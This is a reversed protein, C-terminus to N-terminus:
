GGEDRLRKEEAEARRLYSAGLSAAPQGRGAALEFLGLEAVAAARPRVPAPALELDDRGLAGLADLLGRPLEGALRARAPLADALSRTSAVHEGSGIARVAGGDREFLGAYVEGRRADLLAAVPRGAVGAPGLAEHAIAALTSIGAVPPGDDPDLAFALGKVTAIGIRVSTFSGPGIGVAFSDVEALAVGAEGLLRDLAPLLSEAHPLAADAEIQAVVGQGARALAASARKSACEIALLLRPM